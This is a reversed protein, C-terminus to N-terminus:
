PLNPGSLFWINLRLKRRKMYKVEIEPTERGKCLSRDRTLHGM